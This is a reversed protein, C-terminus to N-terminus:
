PATNFTDVYRARVGATATPKRGLRKRHSANQAPPSALRTSTARPSLRSAVAAGKQRHLADLLEPPPPPMAAAPAKRAAHHRLAAEVEPPPRLQQYLATSAVGDDAGDSPEATESLRGDGDGDGDGDDGDDGDDDDDVNEEDDELPEAKRSGFVSGLLWRGWSERNNTARDEAADKSRPAVEKHTTVQKGRRRRGENELAQWVCFPNRRAGTCRPGAQRASASARVKAQREAHELLLLTRKMPHDKTLEDFRHRLTSRTRLNALPTLGLANVELVSAGYELLMEVCEASGDWAALHLASDQAENRVTMNAASQLLFRVCADHGQSCAVLLPTNGNEDRTELDAGFECLLMVAEIDGLECALHLPTGREGVDRVNPPTGSLLLAQLRDTSNKRVADFVASASAAGDSQSHSATRAHSEATRSMNEFFRNWVADVRSPSVAAARTGLEDSPADVYQAADADAVSDTSTSVAGPSLSTPEYSLQMSEAAAPQASEGDANTDQNSQWQPQLAQIAALLSQNERLSADITQMWFAEQQAHEARERRLKDQATRAISELMAARSSLGSFATQLTARELEKAEVQQALVDREECLQANEAQLLRQSESLVDVQLRLNEQKLEASKAAARWAHVHRQAMDVYQYVASAVLTADAAAEIVQLLYSQMADLEPEGSAILAAAETPDQTPAHSEPAGPALAVQLLQACEVRNEMISVVLPTRGHADEQDASAGAALLARVAAANGHRAALHLPTEDEANRAEILASVAAETDLLALLADDSWCRVALHLLTNGDVDRVATSAGYRSLLRVLAAHNARCAMMLPTEAAADGRVLPADIWATAGHDLLLACARANGAQVAAHLPAMGAANRASCDVVPPHRRLMSELRAVAHDDPQALLEFLEETSVRAPESGDSFSTTASSPPPTPSTVGPPRTWQSENTRANYYYEEGDETHYKIWELSARRVSTATSAVLPETVPKAESSAVAVPDTATVDAAVLHADDRLANEVVAKHEEADEAVASEVRQARRPATSPASMPRARRSTPPARRGSRRPSTWVHEEAESPISASASPAPAGTAAHPNEGDPTTDLARTTDVLTTAAAVSLEADAAVALPLGDIAVALLGDSREDRPEMNGDHRQPPVM